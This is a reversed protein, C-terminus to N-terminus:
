LKNKTSSPRSCKMIINCPFAFPKLSLLFLAPISFLIFLLKTGTTGTTLSATAPISMLIYIVTSHWFYVQLTRQGFDTIVPIRRAPCLCIFSFGFLTTLAYCMLRYLSGYPMMTEALTDAFSNRGTFLLRLYYFHSVYLACIVAWIVLVAGGALKLKVNKSLKELKLKNTMSGLIYFPYFVIIRSLTFEDGIENSYGAFCAILVATVLMFIKNVDRFVYNLAMFAAMALLYWPVGSISTLSFDNVGFLIYKSLFIVIETIIGAALFSAIKRFIDKSSYFLGSIFIFLPMHFSYLFVFAARFGDTDDTIGTFDMFHGILVFFILFFKLNDYLFIRKKELVM